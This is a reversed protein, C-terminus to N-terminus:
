IQYVKDGSVFFFARVAKSIAHLSLAQARLHLSGRKVCVTATRRRPIWKKVSSGSETFSVNLMKWNGSREREAPELAKITMCLHSVTNSALM